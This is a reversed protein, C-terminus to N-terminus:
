TQTRYLASCSSETFWPVKIERRFVTTRRKRKRKEKEEWGIKLRVM